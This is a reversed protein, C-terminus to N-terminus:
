LRCGSIWFILDPLTDNTKICNELFELGDLGSICTIIEKSFKVTATLKKFILNNTTDEDILLVRNFTVM